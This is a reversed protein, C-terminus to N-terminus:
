LVTGIKVRIKIKGYILVSFNTKTQLIFSSYTVIKISLQFLANNKINSILYKVTKYKNVRFNHFFNCCRKKQNTIM